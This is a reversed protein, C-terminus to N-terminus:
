MESVNRGEYKYNNINKKIKKFHPLQDLRLERFHSKSDPTPVPPDNGRARMSPMSVEGLRVLGGVEYDM